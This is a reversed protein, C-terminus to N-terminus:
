VQSNATPAPMLFFRKIQTKTVYQAPDLAPLGLNKSGDKKAAFLEYCQANDILALKNGQNLQRVADIITQTVTCNDVDVFVKYRKDLKQFYVKVLTTCKDLPCSLLSRPQGAMNLLKTM